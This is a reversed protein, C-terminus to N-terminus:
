PGLKMLFLDWEGKSNLLTQNNEGLGFIARANFSGTSFVFGDPMLATTAAFDLGTGGARRAWALHGDHGYRAVFIDAGGDSSLETENEEGPGLTATGFFKGALIFRDEGAVIDYGSATGHVQRAWILEGNEGYRALFVSHDRVAQLETQNAEGPGFTAQGTFDGTLLVSGDPLAAMAYGWQFTGADGGARRAWALRGDPNYRAVFIDFDAESVLTTEGPEGRGFTASDGFGGTIVSSGDEFAAVAHAFTEGTGGAQASWLLQGAPDYRAVLMDRLGSANLITEGAQGPGLTASDIFYGALWVTGDEQIDFGLPSGFARNLTPIDLQLVAATVASVLDGNGAYRALVLDPTGQATLQTEQAEGPGFVSTGWVLTMVLFTGDPCAAARTGLDMDTGGARRAWALSGDERFRAVFMDFDDAPILTTQNPEGAGFVLEDGKFAGAVVVEHAGATAVGVGCTMQSAGAGLAWVLSGGALDLDGDGNGDGDWGDGADSGGGNGSCASCGALLGALFLVVLRRLM